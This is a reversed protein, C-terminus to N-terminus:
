RRKKERNTLGYKGELNCEAEMNGLRLQKEIKETQRGM